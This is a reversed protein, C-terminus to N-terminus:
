CPLACLLAGLGRKLTQTLAAACWGQSFSGRFYHLWQPISPWLCLLAAQCQPLAPGPLRVGDTRSGPTM